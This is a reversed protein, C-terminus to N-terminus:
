YQWRLINYARWPRFWITALSYHTAGVSRYDMIDKHSYIGGGGIINFNYGFNSRADRIIEISHEKLQTGSIGGRDSPLTNCLHFYTIGKSLAYEIYHQSVKLPPLKLSVFSYKRVYDLIVDDIPTFKNNPCGINLEIGYVTSPVIDLFKEWDNHELGVLSYIKDTTFNVNAIGINCLGINNVWGGKVPRLTKVVQKFLDPRCELTYSGLVSIANKHSIYQGFPPSILFQKM